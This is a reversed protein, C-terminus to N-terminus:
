YFKLRFYEPFHTILIDNICYKSNLNKKRQTVMKKKLIVKANSFYEKMTIKM